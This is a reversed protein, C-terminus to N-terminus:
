VNEFEGTLKLYIDQLKKIQKQVNYDSSNLSANYKKRNNVTNAEMIEAAWYKSNNKLSYFTVLETIKTEKPVKDSVFCKIGNAQAEVLVKGFGEYKSPFVFYDFCNIVYNVKNTSGFFVVSSELNYKKVKDEIEKKLNGEGVLFLVTNKNINQIERFIDILFDHNKPYTFNGVHGIVLKDHFDYKNKIYNKTKKDFLFKETEIANKFVTYSKSNFMWEGAQSSCALRYNSLKYIVPKFLHHLILKKRTKASDTSHSHVVIKTKSFLKCYLVNLFSTAISIHFHAVDYKEKNLIKYISKLNKLPNNKNGQIKHITGGLKKIEEDFDGVENTNVIFDFQFQDRNLNRFFDMILSEIGGYNMISVFHVVKIKRM